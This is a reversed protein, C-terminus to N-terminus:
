ILTNCIVMQILPNQNIILLDQSIIERKELHSVKQATFFALVQRLDKSELYM